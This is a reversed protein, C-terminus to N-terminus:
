SAGTGNEGPDYAMYALKQMTPRIRTNDKLFGVLNKGAASKLDMRSGDWRMLLIDIARDYLIVRKNLLQNTQEQIIALTTLLMPNQGLSGITPERLATIMDQAQQKAFDTSLGGSEALANYWAKSFLEMQEQNLPALTYVASGNFVSEGHYSRVRCTVMLKQPAQELELMAGIASRILPREHVPVEDMGDFALICNGKRIYEEFSQIFADDLVRSHEEIAAAVVQDVLIEQRAQWDAPLSVQRLLAAFSRLSILVPLPKGEEFTDCQVALFHKLFTSKGSGPDGIIVCFKEGKIAEMISLFRTEGEATVEDEFSEIPTGDQNVKTTTDLAVYVQSLTVRKDPLKVMGLSTLPLQLCYQRLGHLYRGLSQLERQEESQTDGNYYNITQTGIMLGYNNEASIRILQEVKGHEGRQTLEKKLAHMLWSRDGDAHELATSTVDLKDLLLGMARSVDPQAKVEQEIAHVLQQEESVSEAWGDVVDVLQGLHLEAALRYFTKVAGLDNNRYAEIYQWLAIGALLGEVTRAGYDSMRPKLDSLNDTIRNKWTELNMVCVPEVICLPM